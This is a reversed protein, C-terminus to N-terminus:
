GEFKGRSLHALSPKLVGLLVWKALNTLEYFFHRSMKKEYFLNDRYKVAERYLELDLDLNVKQKPNGRVLNISINDPEVLSYIQKVINKFKNQNQNTFTIIIGINIRNYIKQLIKLGVKRSLTVKAREM